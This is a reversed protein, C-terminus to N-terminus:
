RDPSWGPGSGTDVWSPAAARPPRAPRQDDDLQELDDVLEQLRDVSLWASARILAYRASHQDPILALLRELVKLRNTM